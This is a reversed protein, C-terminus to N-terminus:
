EPLDPRDGQDRLPRDSRVGPPEEGDGTPDGEVPGGLLFVTQLRHGVQQPDLGVTDHSRQFPHEGTLAFGFGEIPQFTQSEDVEITPLVDQPAASSFALPQLPQLLSQADRTIWGEIM